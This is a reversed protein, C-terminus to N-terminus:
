RISMVAALAIPLRHCTHTKAQTHTHSCIESCVSQACTHTHRRTGMCPAAGRGDPAKGRQLTPLRTGPLGRETKWRNSVDTPQCVSRVCVCVCVRAEGSIKLSNVGSVSNYSSGFLHRHRHSPPVPLCHSFSLHPPHLFPLLFEMGPGCSSAQFDDAPDVCAIQVDNQAHIRGYVHADRNLGM